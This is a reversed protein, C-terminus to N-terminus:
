NGSIGVGQSQRQRLNETSLSSSTQAQKAEASDAEAWHGAINSGLQKPIWVMKKGNKSTPGTEAAVQGTINLGPGVAVKMAVGGGSLKEGSIANAAVKKLGASVVISYSNGKVGPSTSNLQVVYNGPPLKATAFVGSANTAGKYAAKGSADAVLVNIAPVAAYAMSAAVLSLFLFSNRIMNKM